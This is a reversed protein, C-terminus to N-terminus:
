PQTGKLVVVTRQQPAFYKQAARQIGEPTVQDFAAYLRNVAEMDGTLAVFRAIHDAVHDASDLSMLFAYKNHRKVADLRRADVAQTKFKELTAYIQDRVANVDEAKKVMTDIEFLPLDRNMPIDAGIFEVKQEEIVLKKFLDSTNGFALEGLLIAAVYDRDAPDFRAGKYAITLVPLTQGPYKVEGTKEGTQPPEQPIESPQYGRKWDGYYKRLLEMTAQPDVDGVILLVVNEPRYFRRFFSLSYDYGQPMNKVDAEFGMTTHKYPHRQYALDKLKEELQFFPDTQSKRFEGYIAGAETEFGQKDYALNQFRDSEIKVVTELDEKAFTIHFATLDDSTFANADAGIGTVIRDYESGPYLKTGRFMMHEFFHAYGTRNPEVEDRSGTRVISYYAILGPNPMPVMLVTLGNPLVEKHNPYPFISAASADRGLMAALLCISAAYRMIAQNEIM